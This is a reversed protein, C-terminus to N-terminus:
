NVEDQQVMAMSRRLGYRLHEARSFPKRDCLQCKHVPLGKRAKSIRGTVPTYRVTIESAEKGRRVEGRAMSDSYSSSYGASPSISREQSFRPDMYETSISPRRGPSSSSNLPNPGPGFAATPGSLPDLGSVNSTKPSRRSRRRILTSSSPQPSLPPLISLSELPPLRLAQPQYRNDTFRTDQNPLQPLSQSSQEQQSTTITRSPLPEVGEVHIIDRISSM